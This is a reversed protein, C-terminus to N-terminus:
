TARAVPTTVYFTQQTSSEPRNDPCRPEHAPQSGVLGLARRGAINCIRCLTAANRQLGHASVNCNGAYSPPGHGADPVDRAVLALLDGGLVELPEAELHEAAVVPRAEALEFEDGVVSVREHEGLDLGTAGVTALRPLVKMPQFLGLDAPH